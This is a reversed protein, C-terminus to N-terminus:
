TSKGVTKFLQQYKSMARWAFSKLFDRYPDSGFAKPTLGRGRLFNNFAHVESKRYLDPTRFTISFSISVSSGNRVFHPMTSPVHIGQGPALHFAQSHAMYDDQFKMNRHAGGYFVEADTASVLSREFLVVHKDGRIQLLFNHEPDMHYPTISHPSSLFIFGEPHCMGPRIPESLTAIESLCSDLLERYKEDQEVNKLAMWSKCEEIRRITEEPSLGNLPVAAPDCGIPLEGANYEVSAQSLSQSLELLRPIQFLPHGCLTHRIIFPARDFNAAFESTDIDLLRRPKKPHVTMPQDIDGAITSKLHPKSRRPGMSRKLSRLTMYAALQLDGKTIRPSIVFDSIARRGKWIRNIMPHDPVACSDVLKLSSQTEFYSLHEFELQIGPSYDKYKEDYAIKLSYGVDGTIFNLKMAIPIGDLFLGMMSM